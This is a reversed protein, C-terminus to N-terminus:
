FELNKELLAWLELHNTSTFNDTHSTSTSHLNFVYACFEMGPLVEIIEGNPDMIKGCSCCYFCPSYLWLCRCFGHFYRSPVGIFGM